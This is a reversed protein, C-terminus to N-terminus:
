KATKFNVEYDKIRIGDVSKFALGKMVFQYEKDKELTVEIIVSKNDESYNIANMKPFANQGKNGLSISYGKGALPKDFNITITKIEASVNTDSNTFENISVVAPRLAEIQPLYKGYMDAIKPMYSDLDPYINRQRDYTELENVLPKILIFGQKNQVRLEKDIDSQEYNHDKMYKIVAARVLAENMMISWTTYQEGILNKVLELIQEGNKILIDKHKDTLYNVFSHNFEHVLIPFYSNIPFNPMGLSDVTWAGMIAYVQKKGNSLQISTGYNQNGNVLGNVIIFQETPEKGYFTSYWSLDLNEYVPLFRITAETYLDSNDRFFDECKTDKYFKQLLEVFKNANNGWRAEPMGDTFAVIPNLNEDIHIAMSM